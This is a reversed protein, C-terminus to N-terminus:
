AAQKRKRRRYGILGMTGVGLLAFTTPEPVAAATTFEGSEVEFQNWNASYNAGSNTSGFNIQNGNLVSGMGAVGHDIGDIVITVASTSVSPNFIFQYEHYGAGSISPDLSVATGGGGHSGSFSV